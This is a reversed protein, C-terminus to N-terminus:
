DTPLGAFPDDDEARPRAPPILAPRVLDPADEIVHHAVDVLHLFADHVEPGCTVPHVAYRTPTLLIAVGDDVIPVPVALDREAKSVVYYRRKFQEIQRARWVAAFEAFRYAALQLGVEPYPQRLKDDHTRDTRSTKIDFILRSAGLEFFGDCTGAYHFAPHFVTVEAAIYRPQFEDLFRDWQVLFPRLEEDAADEPRYRGYIAKHEAAKHVATGLKTSSRQGKRERFRAKKLWEIAADRGEHELRSRWVRQEDVAATATELATWPVLAPKDLVGIITTVSWLRQDTEEPPALYPEESLLPLATM